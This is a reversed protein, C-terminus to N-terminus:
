KEKPMNEKVFESIKDITPKCDFYTGVYIGASFSFLYQWM